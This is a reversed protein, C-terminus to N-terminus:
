RDPFCSAHWRVIVMEVYLTLASAAFVAAATWGPPIREVAESHGEHVADWWARWRSFLTRMIPLGLNMRNATSCPNGRRVRMAKARRTM